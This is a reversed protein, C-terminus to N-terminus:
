RSFKRFRCKHRCTYKNLLSLIIGSILMSATLYNVTKYLVSELNVCVNLHAPRDHITVDKSEQFCKEITQSGLVRTETVVWIGNYKMKYFDSDLKLMTDLDDASMNKHLDLVREYHLAAEMAFNKSKESFWYDLGGAITFNFVLWIIFYVIAYCTKCNYKM